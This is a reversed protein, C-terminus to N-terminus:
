EIVEDGRWLPRGIFLLHPAAAGREEILRRWVNILFVHNKRLDISSVYIAFSQGSFRGQLDSVSIEDSAESDPHLGTMDGLRFQSIKKFYEGAKGKPSDSTTVHSFKILIPQEAFAATMAFAASLGAILTRVTM